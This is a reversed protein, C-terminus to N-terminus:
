NYLAKFEDATVENERLSVKERVLDFVKVEFIRRVIRERDEEKELIRGAFSELHDDAVSYIGYQQYQSLAISKAMDLTEEESVKIENNNIISNKILQWRLDERFDDFEEEIKEETLDKNTEKLWRKLFAEPLQLPYAEILTNKADVEFRQKSSNDLSTSINEKLKELFQEETTVDTDEGFLNRFLEENIEAKEFVQISKITCSFNSDLAEAAEHSINLMHGVEHRDEIATVPNFVVKEDITKGVLSNLTEEDKIHDLALLVNEAQVGNEAENGEADLEAFDARIYAERTVENTDVNKGYQSRIQDVNEEVMKEDVKIRYYDITQSEDLILNVEPSIAVDFVFEFDQDKEFDLAPQLEYNPLPDGILNIKEDRLYNTLNQSLLQNVEEALIAKGFRKNIIGAPVKGPRFGPLAVQHRYERLKDAVNKEYDNKEIVVKITANVNDINERNIKM